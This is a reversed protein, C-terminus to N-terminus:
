QQDRHEFRSRLKELEERGQDNLSGDKAKAELAKMREMADGGMDGMKDKANDIMGAM